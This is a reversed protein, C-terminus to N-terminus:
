ILDQPPNGVENGNGDVSNVVADVRAQLVAPDTDDFSSIWGVARNLRARAPDVIAAHATAAEQQKTTWVSQEATIGNDKITQLAAAADQAVKADLLAQIDAETVGGWLLGGTLNDMATQIEAAKAPIASKCLNIITTTLSGVEAVSHCRVPRDTIQLNSLLRGLGANLEANNAAQVATILPGQWTADTGIWLLGFEGLLDLLDTEDPNSSTAKVDRVHRPDAQM